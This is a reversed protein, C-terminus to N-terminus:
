VREPLVSVVFILPTIAVLETIEELVSVIAVEVLESIREELTFPTIDVVVAEKM